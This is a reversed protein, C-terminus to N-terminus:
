VVPIYMDFCIKEETYSHLKFLHADNRLVLKNQAMVWVYIMKSYASYTEWDGDFNVIAYKGFFSCTSESYDPTEDSYYAIFVEALNERSKGLAEPRRSLIAMEKITARSNLLTKRITKTVDKAAPDFIHDHETILDTYTLSEDLECLKVDPISYNELLLSPQLKNFDWVASTRYESPTLGTYKKFSRSFGQSSHYHFLFAIETVPLSTMRLLIAARSIRRKLIYEGVPQQYWHRFWTEITRRSYGLEQVLVDISTLSYINDEVWKLIHKRISEKM